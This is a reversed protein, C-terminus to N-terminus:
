RELARELDHVRSPTGVEVWNQEVAEQLVKIRHDLRPLALLNGLRSTLRLKKSDWVSGVRTLDLRSLRVKVEPNSYRRM